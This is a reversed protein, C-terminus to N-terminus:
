RLLECLKKINSQPKDPTVRHKAIKEEGQKQLLVQVCEKLEPITVFVASIV